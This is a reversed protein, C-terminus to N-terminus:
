SIFKAFPDPRGKAMGFIDVTARALHEVTVTKKPHHVAYMGAYALVKKLSRLNGHTVEHLPKAIGSKLLSFDVDGIDAQFSALLQRWPPGYEFAELILSTSARSTFQPNIVSLRDLAKTGVSIVPINAYDMRVKIWDTVARATIDKNGECVHQMEDIFIAWPRVRDLAKHILHNMHDLNPKTPLMPYNLALMAKSAVKHPDVASDFNLELFSATRDVATQRMVQNKLLTLLLTKGMGPDAQIVVGAPMRLHRATHIADMCVNFADLFEPYQIVLDLIKQGVQLADATREGGFEQLSM